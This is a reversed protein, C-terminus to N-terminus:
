ATSPTTASKLGSPKSAGFFAYLLSAVPSFILAFAFWGWQRWRATQRLTMIWAPAGVVVAALAAWWGIAAGVLTMGLPGSACSATGALCVTSKSFLAIDSFIIIADVLLLVTALLSVVFIAVGPSNRRWPTQLPARLWVPAGTVLALGILLTAVLLPPSALPPYVRVVDAGGASPCLGFPPVNCPGSVSAGGAISLCFAGCILLVESVAALVWAVVRNM